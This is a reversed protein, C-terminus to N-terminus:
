RSYPTRLHAKAYRRLSSLVRSRPSNASYLGLEVVEDIIAETVSANWFHRGYRRAYERRAAFAEITRDKRM